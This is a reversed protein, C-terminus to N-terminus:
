YSFRSCDRMAAFRRNLKEAEVRSNVYRGVGAHPQVWLKSCASTALGNLAAHHKPLRDFRSAYATHPLANITRRVYSLQTRDIELSALVGTIHDVHGFWMLGLLGSARPVLPAQLSQDKDAYSTPSSIGLARGIDWAKLGGPRSVITRAVNGINQERRAVQGLRRDLKKLDVRDLLKLM